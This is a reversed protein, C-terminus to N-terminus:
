LDEVVLQVDVLNILKHNAEDQEVQYTSPM